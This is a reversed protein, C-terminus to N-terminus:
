WKMCTEHSEWEVGCNPCESNNFKLKWNYGEINIWRGRIRGGRSEDFINDSCENVIKSILKGIHRQKKGVFKGILDPHVIIDIPTLRPSRQPLPRLGPLRLSIMLIEGFDTYYELIIEKIEEALKERRAENM